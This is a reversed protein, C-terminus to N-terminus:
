RRLPEASSKHSPNLWIQTSIAACILLILGAGDFLIFRYISGRLLNHQLPIQTLLWSEGILGTFQMLISEWLSIHYQIPHRLAFLYPINWMCFLIAFGRISAEGPIGILEYAATYQEPHILFTFACELNFFVVLGILFRGILCRTQSPLFSKM